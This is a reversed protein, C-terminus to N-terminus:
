QLQTGRGTVEMSRQTYVYIVLMAINLARTLRVLEVLLGRWWLLLFLTQVVPQAQETNTHLVPSPLVGCPERGLVTGTGGDRPTLDSVLCARARSWVGGLALWSGLTPASGAHPRVVENM